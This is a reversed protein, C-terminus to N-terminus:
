YSQAVEETKDWIRKRISVGVEGVKPQFLILRDWKKRKGPQTYDRQWEANIWGPLAQDGRRHLSLETCRIMFQLKSIVTRYMKLRDHIDHAKQETLKTVPDIETWDGSPEPLDLEVEFAKVPIKKGKMKTVSGNSPGYSHSFSESMGTSRPVFPTDKVIVRLFSSEEQLRNILAKTIFYYQGYFSTWRNPSVFNKFVIANDSWLKNKLIFDNESETPIFELRDWGKYWEGSFNTIAFNRLEGVHDTTMVNMDKIQVSFVFTEKNSVLSLIQGHRNERSSLVEGEKITRPRMNNYHPLKIVAKRDVLAYLFCALDLDTGVFIGDRYAPGPKRTYLDYSWYNEVEPIVETLLDVRRDQIQQILPHDLIGTLTNAVHKKDVTM